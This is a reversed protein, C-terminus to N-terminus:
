PCTVPTGDPSRSVRVVNVLFRVTGVTDTRSRLASARVTVPITDKAFANRNLGPVFLRLRPEALGSTTTTDYGLQTDTAGDIIGIAPRSGRELPVLPIDTPSLIEYRVLYSRVRTSDSTASDGTLLTSLTTVNGLPTGPAIGIRRAISDAPTLTNLPANAADLCFFALTRVTEGNTASPALRKPRPVIELTDLVQLRGGLQVGARGQPVVFTPGAARVLGTLSDVVLAKNDRLATDRSLPVFVFRFPVGDVTEGNANFGTARLRLVAGTSDRLTDGVVISPPLPFPDLRISYVGSPGGAIEVCAAVAGAVSALALAVLAPARRVPARRV